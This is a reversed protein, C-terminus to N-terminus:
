IRSSYYELEKFIKGYNRKKSLDSGMKSFGFLDMTALGYLLILRWWEEYM